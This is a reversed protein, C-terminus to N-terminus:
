KGGRARYAELKRLTKVVEEVRRPTVRVGARRVADPTTAKYVGSGPTFLRSDLPTRGCRARVHEGRTDMEVVCAVGRSELYRQVGFALAACQGSYWTPSAFCGDLAEVVVGLPGQFKTERM